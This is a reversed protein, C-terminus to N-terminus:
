VTGSRKEIGRVREARKKEQGIACGVVHVRMMLTHPRSRGFPEIGSGPGLPHPNLIQQRTQAKPRLPHSSVAPPLTKGKHGPLFSMATSAISSVDPAVRPAKRVYGICHAREVSMLVTASRGAGGRRPKVTSSAAFATPM